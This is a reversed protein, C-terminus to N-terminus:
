FGVEEDTTIISHSNREGAPEGGRKAPIEGQSEAWREYAALAADEARRRLERSLTVVPLYEYGKGSPISYSPMALWLNGQKNRLIRCNDVTISEADGAVELVAEAVVNEKRSQRVQKVNVHM